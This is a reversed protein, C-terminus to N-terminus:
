QQIRGCIHHMLGAIFANTVRKYLKALLVAAWLELRPITLKQLPAVRSSSCLLHSFAQNTQDTSRIYICAGYAQESSDCFGHLHIATANTCIVKRPIRIQTLQPLKFMLQNWEEQRLNTLQEDWFM